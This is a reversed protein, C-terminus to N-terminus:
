KFMGCLLICIAKAFSSTVLSSNPHGLDRATPGSDALGLLVTVSARSIPASSELVGEARPFPVLGECVCRYISLLLKDQRRVRGGVRVVLLLCRVSYAVDHIRAVAHLGARLHAYLLPRGKLPSVLPKRVDHQTCCRANCSCTARADKFRLANRMRRDSSHVAADDHYRIRLSPTYISWSVAPFPSYWDNPRCGITAVLWVTTSTWTWRRSHPLTCRLQLSLLDTFYAYYRWHSHSQM